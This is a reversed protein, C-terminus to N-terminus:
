RILMMKKVSTYGPAELKYFYIGSAVTSASWTYEYAGAPLQGEVLTSVVEGLLNYVKLSVKGTEPLGFVINTEPNFPNPYNQDLYYMDPVLSATETTERDWGELNWTTIGGSGDVGTKEFEFSSSHYVTAPLNGIKGNYTYTGEPAAGPISQTMARLLIGGAGLMIGDRSILPGYLSGDPLNLDLWVDFTATAAGINEITLDYDFSGGAAPIIIPLSAPVLTITVEPAELPTTFFYACEGGGISAAHIDYDGDYLIELGDTENQNEIGVTGETASTASMSNYQFILQGDGTATQYFEPDLLIVQFTEFAGVPAYQEVHNYEVIFRHEVEDHWMWVGGSNPRQPSLDEWYVAIMSPPGDSNPIGSNSYDTETITGMGIWGNSSATFEDYEVGYYQFIFPLDFHLVQDDITFPIETGSGGQAPALEVWDYETFYPADNCDYAMYGHNDPGTPAFLLDGVVTSFETQGEYGANDDLMATFGVEHEQPCATSITVNYVGTVETGPTISGATDWAATNISVYPDSTFLETAIGDSSSLGNNIYTIHMDATEGPDLNGNGNGGAEDDVMLSSYEIVPAHATLTFNSPWSTIADEVVLAFMIIHGEEVSPDIEIEFARDIYATAGAAINGFGATGTIITVLPDDTTISGTTGVAEAVGVNEAYMGIQVTEGYDLQSNGNGTIDDQIEYDNFVVYPGDPPIVDIATISPVANWGTITLTFEGPMMPDINLTVMGAADTTGVAYIEENMACVTAGALPGAPSSVTVDYSTTGILHVPQSNVTLAYAADNRVMVSPDGFITWNKFESQGTAGNLDIMLGSGNFWLGGITFMSDSRMLDVGEDQMDMPPNWSQNQKSMYAAVAGTPSGQTDTARLWAEAFCTTSTFNGNVCAVSVIFPLMNTNVLNNVDTNNFGTSSWATTSGHGCYNIHSRGDNLANAVMVDSGWPDYASDVQTYTYNLLKYAILTIHENDDEGHHGPGQNSAVGLGKHYWEAGELPFKEYNITREVQTLAQQPNEASFRGVFIEPYSDGGSILSFLPDSDATLTPLQQHDGVLLVYALDTSLYIDRIYSQIQSATSGVSSLPVLTTPLGRQNKWEVLPELIDLFDDYCIIMMSGSELLAPYDLESFNVFHNQYMKFFQPDLKSPAARNLSNLGGPASKYVEITVDTYIRLTRTVPNYRFSNLEIVAGRYDRMVYPDNIEVLNQPFFADERYVGAFTYPVSAPDVTRLLHGKSPAVDVDEFELYDSAIVRYAMQGDNPIVLSRNIRPLRPYGAEEIMSEKRMKEFGTYTKGDITIESTYYANVRYNLVTTNVDSSIVEVTFPNESNNLTMWNGAAATSAFALSVAFLICFLKRM